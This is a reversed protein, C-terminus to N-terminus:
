KLLKCVMGGQGETVFEGLQDMYIEELEGNLFSAKVGMQHILDYTTAVSLLVWYTTLRPVPSYTEFFDEREKLTYDTAV